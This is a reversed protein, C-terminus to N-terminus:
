NRKGYQTVAHSWDCAMCSEKELNIVDEAELEFEVRIAQVCCHLKWAPLAIATATGAGARTATATCSTVLSWIWYFIPPFFESLRKRPQPLSTFSLFVLKTGAELGM